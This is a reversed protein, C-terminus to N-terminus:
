GPLLLFHMPFSRLPRLHSWPTSTLATEAVASNVGAGRATHGCIQLAEVVSVAGHFVLACLIGSSVGSGPGFLLAQSTHPCSNGSDPKLIRAKPIQEQSWQLVISALLPIVRMLLSHVSDRTGLPDGASAQTLFAFM